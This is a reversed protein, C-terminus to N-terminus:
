SHSAPITSIEGASIVRRAKCNMRSRDDLKHCGMVEYNQSLNPIADVQPRARRTQAKPNKTSEGSRLTEGWGMRGSAMWPGTGLWPRRYGRTRNWVAHEYRASIFSEKQIPWM